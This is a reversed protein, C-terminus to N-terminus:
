LIIIIKVNTADPIFDRINKITEEYMFLYTSSAEGIAKYNKATEFLKKYIKFDVVTDKSHKYNPTKNAYCFFCPEKVVSLFVEPHQKLYYYLSTTGGKAAGVILFNPLVEQNM